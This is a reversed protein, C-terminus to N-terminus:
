KPWEESNAEVEKQPLAGGPMLGLPAEELIPHDVGM